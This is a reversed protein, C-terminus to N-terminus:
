RGIRSQDLKNLAKRLRSDAQLEYEGLKHGTDTLHRINKQKSHTLKRERGEAVVAIRGDCKLVALLRGRDRGAKSRVVSGREFATSM